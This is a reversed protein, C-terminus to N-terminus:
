YAYTRVRSGRGPPQAGPRVDPRYGPAQPGVLDELTQPRAWWRSPGEQYILGRLYDIHHSDVQPM